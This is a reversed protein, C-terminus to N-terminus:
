GGIKGSLEWGVTMSWGLHSCSRGIEDLRECDDLVTMLVGAPSGM